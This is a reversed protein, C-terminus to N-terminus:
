YILYKASTRRLDLHCLRPQPACAYGRNSGGHSMLENLLCQLFLSSASMGYTMDSTYVKNLTEEAASSKQPANMHLIIIKM